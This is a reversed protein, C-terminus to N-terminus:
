HCLNYKTRMRSVLWNFRLRGHYHCLLHPSPGGQQAQVQLFWQEIGSFFTFPCRFRLTATCHSSRASHFPITVDLQEQQPFWGLFCRKTQSEQCWWCGQPMWQKRTCLVWDRDVQLHMKMAVLWQHFTSLGRGIVLFEHM